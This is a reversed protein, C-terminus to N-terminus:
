GTLGQRETTSKRVGTSGTPVQIATKRSCYENEQMAQEAARLHNLAGELDPMMPILLHNVGYNVVLEYEEDTLKMNAQAELNEVQQQIYQAEAAEAQAEAQASQAEQMERRLQAVEESPDPENFFDDPVPDPDEFDIEIGISRLAEAQADAGHRGEIAAHFQNRQDFEPRLAEYRQKYDINDTSEPNPTDPSVPVEPNPTDQIDPAVTPEDAM